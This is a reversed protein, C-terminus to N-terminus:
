IGASSTSSPEFLDWSTCLEEIQRNQLADASKKAERESEKGDFLLQRASAIAKAAAINQVDLFADNADKQVRVRKLPRLKEIQAYFRKNEAYLLAKDHHLRDITKSAKRVLTQLAFRSPSKMVFQRAIASLDRSNTPTTIKKRKAPISLANEVEQVHPPSYLLPTSVREIQLRNLVVEPAFPVIGAARFGARINRSILAEQRAKAYIEIFNRKKVPASDDISALRGLEVRYRAKLPAFCAVDLPQLEHSSHPPLFFLYVNNQLCKLMFEATEHSGHGDVILLRNKGRPPSTAPLYVEELWRLGIFNNTWGKKSCIYLWSPYNNPLWSTQVNEGKFIIAPPLTDGAATICEIISVWERDEPSTVFTSNTSTTGIVRSTRSCGIALGTEDMNAIDSPHCNLRDLVDKLRSFWAAVQSYETGDYRAIDLKQGTKMKLEKHRKIFRKVWHKGLHEAVGSSRVVLLALDQVQSRTLAHGCQEQRLIWDVLLDEQTASLLQREQAAETRSKCEGTVRRRLTSRPVNYAAAAARLSLHPDAAIAAVAAILNQENSAM